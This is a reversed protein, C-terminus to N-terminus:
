QPDPPSPPAPPEPPTGEEPPPENMDVELDKVGAVVVAPNAIEPLLRMVRGVFQRHVLDAQDPLITLFHLLEVARYCHDLGQFVRPNALHAHARRSKLEVAPPM